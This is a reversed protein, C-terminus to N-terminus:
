SAARDVATTSKDLFRFAIGLDLRDDMVEAEVNLSFSGSMVSGLPKMSFSELTETSM